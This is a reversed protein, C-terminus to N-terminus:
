CPNEARFCELYKAPQFTQDSKSHTQTRTPWSHRELHFCQCCNFTKVDQLLRRYVTTHHQAPLSLHWPWFDSATTAATSLKSRDSSESAAARMSVAIEHFSVSGCITSYSTFIIVVVFVFFVNIPVSTVTIILQIVSCVCSTSWCIVWFKKFLKIAIQFSSIRGRRLHISRCTATKLFCVLKQSTDLTGSVIKKNNTNTSKIAQSLRGSIPFRYLRTALALLALPISLRRRLFHFVLLDPYVQCEALSVSSVHRTEYESTWSADSHPQHLVHHVM